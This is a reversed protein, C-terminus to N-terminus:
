STHAHELLKAVHQVLTGVTRFPNDGGLMSEDAVAIPWGYRDFVTEQICVALDVFGMSDLAGDEGLLDSSSDKPLQQGPPLSKNLDDIAKFVVEHAEAVYDM